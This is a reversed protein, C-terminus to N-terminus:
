AILAMVAGPYTPTPVMWCLAQAGSVMEAPNLHQAVTLTIATPAGDLRVVATHAGANYSIVEGLQALTRDHPLDRILPPDYHPRIETHGLTGRVSPSTLGYALTMKLPSPRGPQYAEVIRAIYHPQPTQTHPDPINARDYVNLHFAPLATLQGALITEQMQALIETAVSAASQATTIHERHVRATLQYGTEAQLQSDSAEGGVSLAGVVHMHSYAPIRRTHTLSASFPHEGPGFTYQTPTWAYLNFFHLAAADQFVLIQFHALLPELAARATQGAQWVFRTIVTAGQSLTFNVQHVGALACVRTIVAQLTLGEFVHGMLARTQTLLWWRGVAVLTLTKEYRDRQIATILYPGQTHQYTIGQVGRSLTVAAGLRGAALHDLTGDRNDLTLHLNCATGSRDLTYRRIRSQTATLPTVPQSRFVFAYDALYTVAESWNLPMLRDNANTLLRLGGSYHLGDDSYALVTKTSFLGGASTDGALSYTLWYGGNIKALHVNKLDYAHATAGQVDIYPGFDGWTGPHTYPATWLSRTAYSVYNDFAVALYYTGPTDSEVMGLGLVNSIHDRKQEAGWSDALADYQRFHTTRAYAWALGGKGAGHVGVLNQGVQAFTWALTQGSWTLGGDDSRYYVFSNTATVQMVAILIEAGCWFVAPSQVGSAHSTWATWQNYDLPNTIRQREVTGGHQRFRIIAEGPICVAATPENGGGQLNAYLLAPHPLGNDAITVSLTPQYSLQQQAAILDALGDTQATRWGGLILGLFPRFGATAAPTVAPSTRPGLILGLFSQFGGAM